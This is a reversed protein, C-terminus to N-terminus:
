LAGLRRRFIGLLTSFFEQVSHYVLLCMGRDLLLSIVDAHGEAAAAMLATTKTVDCTEIQAGADLLLAVAQSSGTRAACLLPPQQHANCVDVHAGRSLLLQVTEVRNNQSSFTLAALSSSCLVQM